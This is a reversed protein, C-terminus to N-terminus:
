DGFNIQVFNYYSGGSGETPSWKSGKWPFQANVDLMFFEVEDGKLPTKFMVYVGGDAEVFWYSVPWAWDDEKAKDRLFPGRISIEPLAWPVAGPLFFGKIISHAGIDWDISGHRGRWKIPVLKKDPMVLLIGGSWGIFNKRVVIYSVCPCLIVFLIIAIISIM